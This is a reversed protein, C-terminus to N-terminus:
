ARSLESSDAVAEDLLQQLKNRQEELKAIDNLISSSLYNSYRKNLEVLEQEVASLCKNLSDIRLLTAAAQVERAYQEVGIILEPRNSMAEALEVLQVTAVYSETAQRVADVM